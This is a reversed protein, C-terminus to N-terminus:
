GSNPLGARVWDEISGLTADSIDADSITTTESDRTIAISLWTGTPGYPTFTPVKFSGDVISEITSFMPDSADLRLTTDVDRFYFRSVHCSYNESSVKTMTFEINGGGTRLWQVTSGVASLSKRPTVTSSQSSAHTDSSSGKTGACSSLLIAGTAIFIGFLHHRNM